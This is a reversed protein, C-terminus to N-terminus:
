NIIKTQFTPANQHTKGRVVNPYCDYTMPSKSSVEEAVLLEGIFVTPTDVEIIQKVKLDLIATAHDLVFQNTIRFVVTTIQGSM